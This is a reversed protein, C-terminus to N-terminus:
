VTDKKKWRRHLMFRGCIGASLPLVVTKLNWVSDVGGWALEPRGETRVSEALANQRFSSYHWPLMLGFCVFPCVPIRSREM